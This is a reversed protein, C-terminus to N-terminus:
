IPTKGSSLIGTLLIQSYSFPGNLNINSPYVVIKEIKVGNPLKESEQSYTNNFSFITCFCIALMFDGLIKINKIRIAM